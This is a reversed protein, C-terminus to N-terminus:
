RATNCERLSDSYRSSDILNIIYIYLISLIMTVNVDTVIFADFLTNNNMLSLFYM